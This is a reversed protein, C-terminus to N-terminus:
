DERTLSKDVESDLVYAAMFLMNPNNFSLSNLVDTRQEKAEM